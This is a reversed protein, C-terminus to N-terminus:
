LILLFGIFNDAWKRPKHILFIMNKQAGCILM